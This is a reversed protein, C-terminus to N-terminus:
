DINELGSKGTSGYGNDGYEEANLIVDLFEQSIPRNYHFDKFFRAARKNYRNLREDINNHRKLLAWRTFEGCLERAYEDLVDDESASSLMWDTSGPRVARKRLVNIYEAAKGGDGLKQWAEAALLYVEAMRMIYMDGCKVQGNSITTFCGDYNWNFKILSPAANSSTKGNGIPPNGAASGNATSGYVYTDAYLDRLVIVPYICKAKDSESLPEHVFVTNFRDDEPDIPYPIAYVKTTNAYGPKNFDATSSAVKLTTSPDDSYEGRPWIRAPWQNYEVGAGAYYCDAYPQIVKGVNQPDIGYKLCLTENLTKQSKARSVGWEEFTWECYAYQWTYEWRRDWEPNFCYMLYESPQWNQSNLRGYFYSNKDSPNHNSNFFDSYSGGVTYAALKNAKSMSMSITTSLDPAAAIMLAERNTRNNADSWMDAIDDYLYAGYTEANTILDEAADKAKKWYESGDGYKSDGLGARQAYVRALLGKASKKTFRAHNGNYPAVPLAEAAETLDKIIADYITKESSRVPKLELNGTLSASSNLNLTVPGYHAVLISYYLARLTKAEATLVAIEEPNGDKINDAENIVTNCTTISTYCQKWLKQFANYSGIAGDYNLLQTYSNGNSKPVWMDTGGESVFLWDSATYIQDNLPGYCTSQLGYWAVFNDLMADGAAPNDEDLNCSNLATFGIMLAMFKQITTKKM